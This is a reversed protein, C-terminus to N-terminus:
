IKAPQPLAAAAKLDPEGVRVCCPSNALQHSCEPCVGHSTKTAFASGFYDELPMWAGGHELKRCWACMRLYEELHHLRKLLRQTALHVAAWVSMVVATKLLPRAWNIIEPESFLYHPLRFIETLWGLTIILGFAFAEIWLIYERRKIAM